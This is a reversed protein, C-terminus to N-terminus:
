FLVFFYCLLVKILREEFRGVDELEEVRFIVRGDIDVRELCIIM